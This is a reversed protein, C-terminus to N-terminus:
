AEGGKGALAARDLREIEALILAGAKILNRRPDSPKWWRAGWPWLAPVDSLAPLLVYHKAYCSAAMAMEGHGHEDDHEPTWGEAEVQRRREALVDTAAQSVAGPHTPPAVQKGTRTNWAAIANQLPRPRTVKLDCRYCNVTDHAGGVDLSGCCPCEALAGDNTYRIPEAQVVPAAPAADLMARYRATLAKGTFESVLHIEDLMQPTPEEPVLKWGKPVKFESV